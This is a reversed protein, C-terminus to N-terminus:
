GSYLAAIYGSEDLERVFTDDILTRVDTQAARPNTQALTDLVIQLGTTVPYPARPFGPETADYTEEAIQQDRFGSYEQQVELVLPRDTKYRHMGAAYARVFRMVLDRDEAILARTAAVGGLTFNLGYDAFDVLFSCGARRAEMAVPPSLPAADIRGELLAAVRDRSSSVGYVIRVGTVGQRELQPILFRILLDGLQGADGPGIRGGDLERVSSLGPRGVLFQQNIGGTIFVLPAGGLVAEVLAPAALNGFLVEGDLLGRVVRKAGELLRIKVDLDEHAFLGARETVFVPGAGQGEGAYAVPVTVLRRHGDSTSPRSM